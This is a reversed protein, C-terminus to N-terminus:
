KKSRKNFDIVMVLLWMMYAVSAAVLMEFLYIFEM